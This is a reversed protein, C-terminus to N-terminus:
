SVTKKIQFIMNTKYGARLEVADGEKWTEQPGSSFSFEYNGIVISKPGTSRIRGQAIKVQYNNLDKNYNMIDSITLRLCFAAIFVFAVNGIGRKTEDLDFRVDYLNIFAIGGISICALPLYLMLRRRLMPKFAARMLERDRDTATETKVEPKNPM